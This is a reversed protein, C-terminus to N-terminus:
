VLAKLLEQDDSLFKLNSRSLHSILYIVTLPWIFTVVQPAM